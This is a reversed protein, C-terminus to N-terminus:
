LGESAQSPDCLIKSSTLYTLLGLIMELITHANNKTFTLTILLM